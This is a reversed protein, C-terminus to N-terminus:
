AKKKLENELISKLVLLVDVPFKPKPAPRRALEGKPSFDWNSQDWRGEDWNAKYAM